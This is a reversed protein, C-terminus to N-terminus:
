RLRGVMKRNTSAFIRGIKLEGFAYDFLTRVAETGYGQQQQRSAIAYGIELEWTAYRKASEGTQDFLLPWFLRQEEPSRLVPLFGCIGIPTQTAKLVVTRYGFLNNTDAWQALNIERQLRERRQEVTIGPGAWLLDHDLVQHTAELDAMVFPRILLRNTELQMM